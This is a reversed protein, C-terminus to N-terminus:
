RSRVLRLAATLMWAPYLAAGAEHEAARAVFVGGCLWWDTENFHMGFRLGVGHHLEHACSLRRESEDGGVPIYLTTATSAGCRGPMYIDRVKFGAARALDFPDSWLDLGGCEAQLRRLFGPIWHMGLMPGVLGVHRWDGRLITEIEERATMSTPREAGQHDHMNSSYPGARLYTSPLIRVASM